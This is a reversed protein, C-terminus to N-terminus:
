GLSRTIVIADQFTRPLTPMPIGTTLSDFNEVLLRLIAAGGWCHSLTLYEMEKEPYQMIVLRPDRGDGGVNILRSPRGIAMGAAEICRPHSQLCQQLWARALCFSPESALSLALQANGYIHSSQDQFIFGASPSTPLGELYDQPVVALEGVRRQEGNEQVQILLTVGGSRSVQLTAEIPGSSVVARQEQEYQRIKGLILSCLHCTISRSIALRPALGYLCFRQSGRSPHQNQLAVTNKVSTQCQECLIHETAIGISGTTGETTGDIPILDVGLGQVAKAPPLVGYM